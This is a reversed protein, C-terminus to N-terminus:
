EAGEGPESEEGMQAPSWLVDGKGAGGNEMRAMAFLLDSLRNLYQLIGEEVGEAGSLRVASREARRCVVRALHLTAAGPVGGPLVFNRLPPPEEWMEDIWEEMETIRELALPPLVPRRRPPEPQPTALHSGLTMLDGQVTGLREATAGSLEMTLALGLCANLEDVDGYAEVRVSDKSARGAGFLGTEGADGTRTYIKMLSKDKHYM